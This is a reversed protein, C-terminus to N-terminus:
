DRVDGIGLRMLYDQYTQRLGQELGIVPVWGTGRILSSDLRKRPTGDPKEPDTKIAGEYGVVGSILRGLDLISVEDDSGVNVWDPPEELTLLHFCARALDDVHLFERLPTGTGWIVVEAAGRMKAEHFRRLLGPIVHSHEAHYNDGPGYLNTPMASHYLVGYQRRYFQCLKLGAIKALAYGENTPELPGTLLSEERIPQPAMKPYICSSGLFLVRRVGAQWSAHILNDVLILNEHLFEAPATANAQIGGVKAAAIIVAEPRQEKLYEAVARQDGLDLESRPMTLVEIGGHRGAERVLASGVMGRHGTIFIREFNVQHHSTMLTVFQQRNVHAPGDGCGAM